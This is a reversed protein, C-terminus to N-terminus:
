SAKDDKEKTRKQKNVHESILAEIFQTKIANRLTADSITILMRKVAKPMKFHSGKM